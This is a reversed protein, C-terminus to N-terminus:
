PIPIHVGLQHLLGQVGGDHTTKVQIAVIRGNELRYEVDEPPMSVSSAMQPIPPLGLVTLAFSDSQYGAIKWTGTVRHEGVELVNHLNFILGPIGEKLEEFLKLFGNKDLSRPTWGSFIFEDALYGGWEDQENADLAAMFARVIDSDTGMNEM